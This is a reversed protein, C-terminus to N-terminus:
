SAPGLNRDLKCVHLVQEISCPFRCDSPCASLEEWEEIFARVCFGFWLVVVVILVKIEDISKLTPQPRDRGASSYIRDM